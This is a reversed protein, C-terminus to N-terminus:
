ITHVLLVGFMSVMAAIFAILSMDLRSELREFRADMRQELRDFRADIQELRQDVQDFRADIRHEVM